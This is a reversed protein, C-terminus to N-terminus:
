SLRERMLDADPTDAILIDRIAAPDVDRVPLGDRVALATAIGAAQGMMCCSPMVRASSLTLRDASFCRGAVLCNDIGAPQLSRYPVQYPPLIERTGNADVTFTAYAVADEFRTPVRIEDITLVHEGAIRRGERLGLMPSAFDFVYAPDHKDQFDRVIEPIRGRMAATAAHYGDGIGTDFEMDFLKLKLGVRGHPEKWVSYNPVHEESYLCTEPLVQPAPNDVKRLFIMFSPKIVGPFAPDDPLVKAGAYQALLGDGTADIFVTAAIDQRLSRNHIRAHGIRQGDMDTAVATSSFLLDIGAKDCLEQLVIPLVQHDFLWNECQLKENIRVRWGNEPGLAGYRRLGDLVDHYVRGQGQHGGVAASFNGVGGSAGLGGLVEAQEVILTKAGNRAAAVAAGIGAM